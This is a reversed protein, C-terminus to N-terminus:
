SETFALLKELFSDYEKKGVGSVELTKRRSTKGATIDVQSKSVGLADAVIEILRKNAKGNEPPAATKIKLRGAHVGVIEDKSAGPQVQVDLTLLGKNDSSM